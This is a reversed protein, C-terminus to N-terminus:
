KVAYFKRVYVTSKWACPVGKPVFVTDGTNVVLESGDAAQLTVSGEILHMLEHLKHPRSRRTYPTSDWVGILLNTPEEVFMGHSRCQPTSSILIEADPPISPSLAALPDLLTLGPNREGINQIDACFAWVADGQVEVRLPSGRGIVASDGPGLELTSGLSQLTVRGSHVVIMEAYPYEDTSFQGSAEVVGATIDGPSTYATRRQAGFPDGASLPGATFTTPVPTGDARALLVSTPELM